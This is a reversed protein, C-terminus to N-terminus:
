KAGELARSAISKAERLNGEATWCTNKYEAIEKLAAELTEVRTRLSARQEFLKRIVKAVAFDNIWKVDTKACSLATVEDRNLDYLIGDVPQELFKEMDCSVAGEITMLVVKGDKYNDILEQTIDKDSM